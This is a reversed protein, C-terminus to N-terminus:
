SNGALLRKTNLTIVFRNIFNTPVNRGLTVLGNEENKNSGFFSIMATEIVYCCVSQKKQKTNCMFSVVGLAFIFFLKTM